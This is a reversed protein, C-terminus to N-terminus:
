EADPAEDDADTDEIAPPDLLEPAIDDAEIVLMTDLQEDSLEAESAVKTQEAKASCARMVDQLIARRFQTGNSRRKYQRHVEKAFAQAGGFESILFFPLDALDDKTTSVKLAKRAKKMAKEVLVPDNVDPLVKDPPPQPVWSPDVIRRSTAM